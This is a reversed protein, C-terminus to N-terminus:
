PPNKVHLKASSRRGQRPRPSSRHRSRRISLSPSNGVRQYTQRTGPIRSVSLANSARSRGSHNETNKVHLSATSRRGQRPRPSSRHRSRRISLGPSKGVRQYTQRTGPIRSVSPLSSARSGCPPANEHACKKRTGLSGSPLFTTFQSRNEVHVDVSLRRGRCTAVRHVISTQFTQFQARSMGRCASINPTNRPHSIRVTSGICPVWKATCANRTCM